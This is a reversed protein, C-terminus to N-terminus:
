AREIERWMLIEDAEIQNALHNGPPPPSFELCELLRLSRLNSHKLVATLRRVRYHRVLETIMADVARRALGRGWYRSSLIYAIAARSDPYVTAQVFGILEGTALRIVWNLWQERGDSSMRSELAAFRARLSQVSAPPQNEFQYIRLDSLVAFMEEAHLATQPELTISGAHIIHM